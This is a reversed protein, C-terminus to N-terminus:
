GPLETLYLVQRPLKTDYCVDLLLKNALFNTFSEPVPSNSRPEIQKLYLKSLNRSSVIKRRIKPRSVCNESLIGVQLVCGGYVTEFV